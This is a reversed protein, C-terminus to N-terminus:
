ILILKVVKLQSNFKELELFCGDLFMQSVIYLFDLSLMTLERWRISHDQRVMVLKRNKGHEAVIPEASGGLGYKRQLM